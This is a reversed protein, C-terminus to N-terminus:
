RREREAVGSRNSYYKGDLDALIGSVIGARGVDGGASCQMTSCGAGRRRGEGEPQLVITSARTRSIVPPYEYRFDTPLSPSTPCRSRSRSTSGTRPLARETPLAGDSTNWGFHLIALVPPFSNNSLAFANSRSTTYYLLRPAEERRSLNEISGRSESRRNKVVARWICPVSAPDIATVGEVRGLFDNLGRAVEPGILDDTLGEYAMLLRNEATYRDM